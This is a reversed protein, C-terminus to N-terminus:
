GCRKREALPRSHPHVKCLFYGVEQAVAIVYPLDDALLMERLVTRKAEFPLAQSAGM